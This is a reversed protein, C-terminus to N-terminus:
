TADPAPTAPEDSVPVDAVATDAPAADEPPLPRVLTTDAPPAAVPAPAPETVVPATADPAGDQVVGQMGPYLLAFAAIAIALVVLAAVWLPLRFGTRRESLRTEATPPTFAARAAEPDATKVPRFHLRVGGFRVSAGYALPTPVNAAMRVGEVFTGNTSELDTLRWGGHEYELLAHRTSISDDEIVVENGAGSGIAAHPSPVPFEAGIRPGAQVAFLALAQSSSSEKSTAM